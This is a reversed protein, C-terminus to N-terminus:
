EAVGDRQYIVEGEVDKVTITTKPNAVLAVVVGVFAVVAVAVLATIFAIGGDTEVMEQQNMEQVGYANLDLNKM